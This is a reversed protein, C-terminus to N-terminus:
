KKGSMETAGSPRARRDGPPTRRRKTGQRSACVEYVRQLIGDSNEKVEGNWFRLVMVGLSQLYAHRIRDHEIGEETAHTDGDLEIVLAASASYFDAIYLGLPHQRRFKWDALRRNRLLRWVAKEAPIPERRMQRAFEILRPDAAV